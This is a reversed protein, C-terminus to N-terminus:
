GLLASYSGDRYGSAAGGPRGIPLHSAEHELRFRHRSCAWEAVERNERPDISCTAYLIRGRPSRSLILLADEVIRKQLAVLRAIQSSADASGSTEARYKAEHRRALVGTNSCPVDLLVLDARGTFEDLLAEPPLVRVREHGTFGERLTRSRTPDPDSAVIMAEPFTAALQRTKTGQGACLDVILRPKLHRSQEIAATSSPDQVWLDARSGLLAVLEAHTGTFVHHGPVEHPSLTPPLTDRAFATFLITPPDALSHFSLDQAIRSGLKQSWRALLAPPHSTAVALREMPDSPLKADVLRAWRVGRIPIAGSALAESEGGERVEIAEGRMSAVRRLVANVMPGAGLRVFGKALEVSEDIAAHVPIRDLLILQAAGCLLVGQLEAQLTALPRDLAANLLHALTLWRSVAGDTIAHALAADRDDLSRTEPEL